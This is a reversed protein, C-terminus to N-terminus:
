YTVDDITAWCHNDGLDKLKDAMKITLVHNDSDFSCDILQKYLPTLSEEDKPFIDTWWMLLDAARDQNGRSLWCEFLKVMTDSPVEPM